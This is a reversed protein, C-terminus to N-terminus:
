SSARRSRRVGRAGQPVARHQEALQEPPLGVTFSCLGLGRQGIEEHGPLSSTAGFIPPHPQQLPKPLVRRPAGMQWYEGQAQYEDETWAGVIHGLAERWM